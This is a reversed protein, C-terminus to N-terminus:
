GGLSEPDDRKGAGGLGSPWTSVKEVDPSLGMAFVEVATVAVWNM